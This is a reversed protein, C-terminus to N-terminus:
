SHLYKCRDGYRCRGRQFDRCVELDPVPLRGFCMCPRPERLNYVSAKEFGALAEQAREFRKTRLLLTRESRQASLLGVTNVFDEDDSLVGVLGNAHKLLLDKIVHDAHEKKRKCLVPLAGGEELGGLGGRFKERTAEFHKESCVTMLDFKGAKWGLLRKLEARVHLAFHKTCVHESMVNEVDWLILPRWKLEQKTQEVQRRVDALQRQLSKVEGKLRLIQPDGEPRVEEPSSASVPPCVPQPTSM